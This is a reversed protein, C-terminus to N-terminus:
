GSCKQSLIVYAVVEQPLQPFIVIVSRGEHEAIVITHNFPEQVRVLHVDSVRWLVQHRLNFYM